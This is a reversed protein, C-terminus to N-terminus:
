KRPGTELKAFATTPRQGHGRVTGCFAVLICPGKSLKVRKGGGRREVGVGGGRRWTHSFVDDGLELQAIGGQEDIRGVQLHGARRRLEGADGRYVPRGQEGLLRIRHLLRAGAIVEGRQAQLGQVDQADLGPQDECAILEAVLHVREIGVRIM